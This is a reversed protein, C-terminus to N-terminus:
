SELEVDNQCVLLIIQQTLPFSSLRAMLTKKEKYGIHYIPLSRQETKKKKKKKSRFSGQIKKGFIDVKSIMQAAHM